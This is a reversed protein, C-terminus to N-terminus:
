LREHRWVVARPTHWRLACMGAAEGHAACLFWNHHPHFFVGEEACLGCFRQLLYLNEDEEFWPFPMAPPGTMALAVGHEGAAAELGEGLRRGLADLQEVVKEEKGVRLCALAAAMAAADSWCSGTLFITLTLFPLDKKVHEQLLIGQSGRGMRRRPTKM